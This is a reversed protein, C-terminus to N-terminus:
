QGGGDAPEVVTEDDIRSVVRFGDVISGVPATHIQDNLSIAEADAHSACHQVKLSRCKPTWNEHLGEGYPPRPLNQPLATGVMRSTGIKEFTGASPWDVMGRIIEAASVLDDADTHSHVWLEAVTTHPSADEYGYKLIAFGDYLEVALRDSIQKRIM